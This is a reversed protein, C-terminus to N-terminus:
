IIASGDISRKTRFYGVTEIVVACRNRIKLLQEDTCQSLDEPFLLYCNESLDPMVLASGQKKINEDILDWNMVAM